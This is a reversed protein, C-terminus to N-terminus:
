KGYKNIEEETAEIIKKKIEPWSKHKVVLNSIKETSIKETSLDNKIRSLKIDEIEKYFNKGIRALHNKIKEM